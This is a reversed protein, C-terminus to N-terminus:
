ILRDKKLFRQGEFYYNSFVIEMSLDKSKTTVFYMTIRFSCRESFRVIETSLSKSKITSIMYKGNTAKSGLFNKRVTFDKMPLKRCDPM